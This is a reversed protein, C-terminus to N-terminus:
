WIDFSEPLVVVGNESLLYVVVGIALLGTVTGLMAQSRSLRLRIRKHSGTDAPPTEVRMASAGVVALALFPGAGVVATLVGTWRELSAGFVGTGGDNGASWEIVNVMLFVLAPFVCAFALWPTWRATAPALVPRLEIEGTPRRQKM